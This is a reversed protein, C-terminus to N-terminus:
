YVDLVKDNNFMQELDSREVLFFYKEYVDYGKRKLNEIDSSFKSQFRSKRVFISDGRVHDVKYFTYNNNELKVEFIDGHRPTKIAKEIENSKKLEDIKYNISFFVIISLGTYTWFPARAKAKLNDYATVLFPPMEKLTLVQKCFECHSVGIKRLPFMPIWFLHMYKQIVHMVLSNQHGCYPCKDTLVENEIEKKKTGYIIM